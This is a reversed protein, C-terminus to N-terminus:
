RVENHTITANTNLGKTQRKRWIEGGGMDIGGGMKYKKFIHGEWLKLSGVQNGDNMM